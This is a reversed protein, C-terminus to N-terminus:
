IGKLVKNRHMARPVALGPAISDGSYPIPGKINQWARRAGVYLRVGLGIVFMNRTGM